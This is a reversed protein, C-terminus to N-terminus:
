AHDFFVRSPLKDSKSTSGSGFTHASTQESRPNHEGFIQPYGDSKALSWPTQKKWRARFLIREDSTSTNFWVSNKVSSPPM